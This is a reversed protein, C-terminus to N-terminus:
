ERRKLRKVSLLVLGLDRVRTLLGHLAAQDAVPGSLTSVGERGHALELGEFWEAWVDDLHGEVCIQYVWAGGPEDM